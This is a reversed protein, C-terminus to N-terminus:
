PADTLAVKLRDVAAATAAPGATGMGTWNLFGHILSPMREAEVRVGAERLRDAYAEGEDRLPDFGATVVYAPATGPPIEARLLSVRPDAKVEPDPAYSESALDMFKQTLFFGDAFARRSGSREVFETVPYVLWQFRCPLGSRAAELAVAAALNGGASDGGVALRQTDVRWEEAEAVLAAHAALCDDWAAPFPHEPALRYDVAIVQIGAREAIFRCPADHSALGGYIFGGGHFFLLTPRPESSKALDEPLYVRIPLGALAGEVVQAIPQEGGVLQSQRDLLVRGKPIPQDEIRPERILRQLRLVLQTDLDLVQGDTRIPRGALQRKVAEPLALIGRVTAREGRGRLREIQQPDVHLRRRRTEPLAM